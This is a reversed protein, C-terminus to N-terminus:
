DFDFLTALVPFIYGLLCFTSKTAIMGVAITVSVSIWMIPNKWKSSM